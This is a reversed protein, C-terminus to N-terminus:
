QKGEGFHEESIEVKSNDVPVDSRLLLQGVIKRTVKLPSSIWDIEYDVGEELEDM